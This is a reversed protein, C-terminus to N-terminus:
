RRLQDDRGAGAVAAGDRGVWLQSIENSGADVALLEHGGATMQLAGQSGIGPEPAPAAPPLRRAPSPPSPGTPTATM